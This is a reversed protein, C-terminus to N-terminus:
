CGAWDPLPGRVERRQGAQGEEEVCWAGGARGSGSGSGTGTGTGTETGSGTRSHLSRDIAEGEGTRSYTRLREPGDRAAAQTCCNRDRDRNPKPKTNAIYVPTHTHSYTRLLTHAAITINARCYVHVNSNPQAPYRPAHYPVSPLSHAHAHICPCLRSM